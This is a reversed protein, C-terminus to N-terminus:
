RPHFTSVSALRQFLEKEESSPRTPVMVVLRVYLDGLDGERRRLGQGRLRFRQGNQSGPPITLKVKGILKEVEVRTGLVVEWPAVNLQVALDGAGEVTFRPHPLLRIHVYLDGPPGGGAGPEGQGALRLTTGERAGAPINVELTKRGPRTGRGRCAPCPRKGKVGSGGCEPCPEGIELSFSRRTGIHAEELTIAAEADIDRGRMQFGAQAPGSARRGSFLSEFFDSFGGSREFDVDAGNGAHTTTSEWGPPPRFEAGSHWNAGLQDYRKRKQPDSLVEYAEQVEKFKAEAPQDGPNLDPHYKRALKRHTKKIEDATASRSVGLIEYYDKYTVAM